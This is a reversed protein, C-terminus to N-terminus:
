QLQYIPSQLVLALLGRIKTDRLDEDEPDLPGGIYDILAQREASGMQDRVGLAETVTDVVEGADTMAASVLKAPQFASSGRGRAAAVNRAFEYRALLTSSNLWGEEWDWGFVSPPDFLLQGMDNLLARLTDGRGAIRLDRGTPKVKLARLTGIVYDVPWRVSKQTALSPPTATEYFVDNVFMARLLAKIDWNGDFGSEDIIQDVVENAPAAHAFFTLLRRTMYRAVTSRNDTDRHEFIIDIVTDIEAEGEGNAAFDRGAPGFGGTEKFIVKPGREPFEEIFDHRSERLLPALSDRNYNWGTFARSIQVIDEQTYNPNGAFDFVGMTFLELLERGYNENPNQKRNRVTDLFEMMAPDKNIAKVFDKFNGRPQRRRHIGTSHQRFLQNQVGMLNEDRVTDFNTAFHDHFFLVLKEQLSRRFRLMYKLWRNHVDTITKGKPRFRTPRFKLLDDAAEGRTVGILRQIDRPRAPEGFGTRRLLQRAEPETLPTAADGM